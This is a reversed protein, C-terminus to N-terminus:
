PEELLLRDARKTSDLTLWEPGKMYLRRLSSIGYDLAVGSADKLKDPDVAEGHVVDSRLSYVKKLQRVLTSRKAPEDELLKALAATVRFTTEGDAGVLNEWAIVADVLRDVLDTRGSM